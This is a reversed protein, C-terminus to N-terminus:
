PPKWSVGAADKCIAERTSGNQPDHQQQPFYLCALLIHLRVLAVCHGPDYVADNRDELLNLFAAMPSDVRHWDRLVAKQHGARNM